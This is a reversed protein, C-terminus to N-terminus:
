ANDDETFMNSIQENYEQNKQNKEFTRVMNTTIPKEKIMQTRLTEYDLLCLGISHTNEVYRTKNHTLYFKVLNFAQEAGLLERLKSINSNVKANRVPEVGYRLRYAYAYSLWIKKNQESQESSLSKKKKPLNSSSSNSESSLSLPLTPSLPLPNSGSTPRKDTSLRDTELENNLDNQPNENKPRGGKDGANKRQLLWAFQKESGRLYVYQNQNGKLEALGVDIIYDVAKRRKWESLPIMRETEENLYFEQAIICAEVFAGLAAHRSGIKIILDLYPGDKFLSDEINIRAM